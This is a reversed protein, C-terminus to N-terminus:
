RNAYKGLDGQREARLLQVAYEQESVGAIAAAEREAPTLTIKNGVLRSSAVSGGDRNPPAAPRPATRTQAQEQRQQPADRLGLREELFTFYQPTDPQIDEAIAAHHASLTKAYLKQDTFHAPNRRAWAQSSPSLGSISKEFPDTPEAKEVRGEHTGRAPPNAKRTEMESKIVELNTMRAAATAINRQAKAAAAYDGNEMARVYEGEAQDQQAKVADIAQVVMQEQQSAAKGNASEVAKRAEAAETEAKQRALREAEATAKMSELQRALDEKGEEATVPQKDGVQADTTGAGDEAKVVEIKGDDGATDPKRGGLKAVDDLTIEIDKDIAETSM